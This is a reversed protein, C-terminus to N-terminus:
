PATLRSGVTSGIALRRRRAFLGIALVLLAATGRADPKTFLECTFAAHGCDATTNCLKGCSGLDGFGPGGHQLITPSFFMCTAPAPTGAAPGDWGCSPIAGFTCREACAYVSPTTQGVDVLGMCAGRCDDASQSCIDGTAKGSVPATSCMGTKPSCYLGTGCDWDSNCQPLCASGVFTDGAGYLDSCAVDTRGHCKNYDFQQLQVPGFTCGEM